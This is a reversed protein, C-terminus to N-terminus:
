IFIATSPNTCQEMRGFSLLQISFNRTFNVTYFQFMSNEFVQSELSDLEQFYETPEQLRKDLPFDDPDGDASSSVDSMWDPDSSDDEFMNTSDIAEPTERNANESTYSIGQATWDRDGAVM